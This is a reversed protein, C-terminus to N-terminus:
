KRGVWTGGLREQERRQWVSEDQRRKRSGGCIVSFWHVLGDAHGVLTWRGPSKLDKGALTEQKQISTVKNSPTRKGQTMNNMEPERNIGM